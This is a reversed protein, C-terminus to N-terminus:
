RAGEVDLREVVVSAEHFSAFKPEDEVLAAAVAVAVAEDVPV